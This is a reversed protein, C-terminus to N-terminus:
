VRQIKIIYKKGEPVTVEIKRIGPIRLIRYSAHIAKVSKGVIDADASIRFCTGVPFLNYILSDL